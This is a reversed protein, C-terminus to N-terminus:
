PTATTTASAALFSRDIKIYDVPFKQLHSLSSYGTGFDDISLRVGLEKLQGLARLADAGAPGDAPKGDSGTGPLRAVGHRALM